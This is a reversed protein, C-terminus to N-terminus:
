EYLESEVQSYLDDFTPIDDPLIQGSKLKAMMEMMIDKVRSLISNIHNNQTIQNTISELQGMLLERQEEYKKEAEKSRMLQEYLSRQDDEYNNQKQIGFIRRDDIAEKRLVDLKDLYDGTVLIDIGKIDTSINDIIFDEITKVKESLKNRIDKFFQDEVLINKYRKVGTNVEFVYRKALIYEYTKVNNILSEPIFVRQTDNGNVEYPDFSVIERCIYVVTSSSLLLLYSSISIGYDDFFEKKLDTTPSLEQVSSPSITGDIRVDYSKDWKAQLEIHYNQNIKLAM